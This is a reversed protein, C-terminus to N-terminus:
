RLMYKPLRGFRRIYSSKLESKAARYNEIEAWRVLLQNVDENAKIKGGVAKLRRDGVLCERLHKGLQKTEGIQLREGDPEDEYVVEYVGPGLPIDLRPISNWPVWRDWEIEGSRLSIRNSM